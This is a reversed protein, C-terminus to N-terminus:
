QSGLRISTRGVLDDLPEEIKGQPALEDQTKEDDDGDAADQRRKTPVRISCWVM